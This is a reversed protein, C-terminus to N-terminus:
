MRPGKFHAEVGQEERGMPLIEQNRRTGMAGERESLIQDSRIHQSSLPFPGSLLGTGDNHHIITVGELEESWNADLQLNPFSIPSVLIIVHAAIAEVLSNPSQQM